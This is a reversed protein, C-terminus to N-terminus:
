GMGCGPCDFPISVDDGNAAHQRPTLECDAGCEEAHGALPEKDCAAAVTVALGAIVSKLLTKPIDMPNTVYSM